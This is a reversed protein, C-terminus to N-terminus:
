TDDPDLGLPPGQMPLAQPTLTRQLERGIARLNEESEQQAHLTYAALVLAVLSIAVAIAALARTTRDSM